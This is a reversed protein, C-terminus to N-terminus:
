RVPHPGNATVSYNEFFENLFLSLDRGQFKSTVSFACFDINFDYKAMEM